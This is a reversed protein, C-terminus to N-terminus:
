GNRGGKEPMPPRPKASTSKGGAKPDVQASGTVQPFRNEVPGGRGGRGGQQAAM